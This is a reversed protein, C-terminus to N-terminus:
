EKKNAAKDAAKSTTKILKEATRQDGCGLLKYTKGQLRHYNVFFEEIERFAQKPLDKLSKIHEYTRATEAVAVLRDNRNTGKSSTQEGEIVGIIRAMLACGPFAPEDMLVLVDLPDGDGAITRPVFGFDYPFCMGAPLASKLVYVKQEPDFSYKNRCGRPTEIIVQLLVEGKKATGTFNEEAKKTFQKLQTPDALGVGSNAQRKSQKGM